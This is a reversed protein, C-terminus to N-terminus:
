EVIEFDHEDHYCRRHESLTSENSEPPAEPPNGLTAGFFAEGFDIQFSRPIPSRGHV